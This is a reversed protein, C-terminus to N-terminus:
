NGDKLGKRMKFFFRMFKEMCESSCFITPLCTKEDEFYIIMSGKDGDHVKKRCLTCREVDSFYGKNLESADIKAM